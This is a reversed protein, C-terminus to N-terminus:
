ATRLTKAVAVRLTRVLWRAGHVPHLASAMCAKFFFEHRGPAGGRYLEKAAHWYAELMLIRKEAPTGEPWALHRSKVAIDQRALKGPVGTDSEAHKRYFLTPEEHMCITAHTKLLKMFCDLDEVGRMEPSEDFGGVRNMVEAKIVSSSTIIYCRRLLALPRHIMEDPTMPGEVFPLLHEISDRFLRAKCFGFDAQEREMTGVVNELHRPAWVDDCDIFAFYDGKAERMGTNRAAAQGRNVEHKVLRIPPYGELNAFEEVIDDIPEPSADDIVLVEAPQLTQKGISELCEPLFKRAKYAPIIVSIM